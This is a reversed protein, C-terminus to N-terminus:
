RIKSTHLVELSSNPNMLTNILKSKAINLM